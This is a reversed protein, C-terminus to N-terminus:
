YDYLLKRLNKAVEEPQDAHIWHGAGEVEIFESSPFVKQIEKMDSPTLYDSDSGKLFVVPFGTFPQTLGEKLDIGAMIRDLNNRLSPANLKWSFKGEPGRQLNKLIFARVKESYIKELLLAEAARRSRIVSLDISLITKLILLHQNYATSKTNENTFPSIDAVLLGYIMDPWKSAFSIATKGGMSHGALFFKKLQLDSALEFLDDRM